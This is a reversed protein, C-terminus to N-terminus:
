WILFFEPELVVNGSLKMIKNLYKIGFDENMKRNKCYIYFYCKCLNRNKMGIDENLGINILKREDIKDLIYGALCFPWEDMNRRKIKKSLQEKNNNLYYMFLLNYLGNSVDTYKGQMDLELYKIAEDHLSLMSCCLSYLKYYQNDSSLKLLIKCEDYADIFQNLSLLAIIKNYKEGNWKTENFSIDAQKIAEDYNQQLILNFSDM